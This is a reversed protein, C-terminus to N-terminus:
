ARAREQNNQESRQDTRSFGMTVLDFIKEKWDFEFVKKREECLKKIQDFFPSESLIQRINQTIAEEDVPDFLLEEHQLIDRIGPIKTGICALDMGLAELMVNPMGEQISPLVFLDAAGFFGWLEEKEVWGKFIVKSQLNLKKTLEKLHHVYPLTQKGFPDGIVLLFWNEGRLKSLSKLLFEINKRPTLVGATVFIKAQRSIGLRHRTEIIDKESFSEIVKPINNFLVEVEVKKWKGITEIVEQRITTNVAVIRDAFLLGLYEVVKNLLRLLHFPDGKDFKLSLDLRVFTVMPKNLIWKPVAQLFAYLPGFSVFLNVKERWGILLGYFPFFLFVVLKAMWGNKGQFPFFMIHNLYSPHKVPVPVLSLCHVECGRELLAEVMMLFRDYAGGKRLTYMATQIKM